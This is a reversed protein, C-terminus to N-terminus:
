ASLALKESDIEKEKECGGKRGGGRNERL